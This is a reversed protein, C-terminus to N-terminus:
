TLQQDVYETVFSSSARLQLRTGQRQREKFAEEIILTLGSPVAVTKAL